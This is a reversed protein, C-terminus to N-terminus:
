LALSLNKNICHLVKRSLAITYTLKELDDARLAIDATDLATDTGAGGMAIGVTASAVAPADNVGDGVMAVNGYKEQLSKITELKDQPLLEAKTESLGLQKGIATGAAQNDGTLM